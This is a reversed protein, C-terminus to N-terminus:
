ARIMTKIYSFLIGFVTGFIQGVRIQLYFDARVTTKEALFDARIAVTGEKTPVFRTKSELFALLYSLSQAYIGFDKATDAAEKGGVNVDLHYIRCKFGGFFGPLEGLVCRVLSCIGELKNEKKGAHEAAYQVKKAKEAAATKLQKKQEKKEASKQKKLKKKLRAAREKELRKQHKKYTFDRLDVPKPMKPMRFLPIAGIGASLTFQEELQIRLRLPIAGLLAFFLIIGVLVWLFTM